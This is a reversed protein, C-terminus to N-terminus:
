KVRRNEDRVFDVGGIPMLPFKEGDRAADLEKEPQVM